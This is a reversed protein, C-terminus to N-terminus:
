EGPEPTIDGTEEPEQNAPNLKCHTEHTKVGKTSFENQCFRCIAIPNKPTSIDETTYIGYGGKEILGKLFVTETKTRSEYVGNVFKIKRSGVRIPVGHSALQVRGGYPITLNPRKSYFRM